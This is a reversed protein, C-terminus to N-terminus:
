FMGIVLAWWPSKAFYRLGKGVSVFLFVATLIYFALLTMSLGFVEPLLVMQLDSAILDQINPTAAGPGDSSSM